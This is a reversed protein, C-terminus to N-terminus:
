ILSAISVLGAGLKRADEGGTLESASLPDTVVFHLQVSGAFRPKPVVFIARAPKYGLGPASVSAIQVGETWIGIEQVGDPTPPFSALDVALTLRDGYRDQWEFAFTGVPGNAWVGWDEIACWGSVLGVAIRPDSALVRTDPLVAAPLVPAARDADALGWTEGIVSRLSTGDMRVVASREDPTDGMLRAAADAIAGPLAEARFATLRDDLPFGNSAEPALAVAAVGFYRAEHLLSSSIAVTTAVRGSALLAYVSSSTFRVNPIKVLELASATDFAAYPHARALLLDHDDAIRRIEKSFQALNLFGGESILARDMAMQGALLALRDLKPEVPLVAVAKLRRRLLGASWFLERPDLASQALAGAFTPHSSEGMLLLDDMFRCPHIALKLLAGASAEIVASLSDPLEFGIVIRGAVAQAIRESLESGLPAGVTRLWREGLDEQGDGILAAMDLGVAAHDLVKVEVDGLRLFAALMLDRFLEANAQQHWVLEGDASALRFLDCAVLVERSLAVRDAEAQASVTPAPGDQPAVDPAREAGRADDSAEAATSDLIEQLGTM